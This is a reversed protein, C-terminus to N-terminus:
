RYICICCCISSSYQKRIIRVATSCYSILEFSPVLRRNSKVFYLRIVEHTEFYQTLYLPLGIFSVM